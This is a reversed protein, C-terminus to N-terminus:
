KHVYIRRPRPSRVEYGHKKHRFVDYDFEKRGKSDRTTDTRVYEFNTNAPSDPYKLFNKLENLRDDSDKVGKSSSVSSKGFFEPLNDPSISKFFDKWSSLGKRGFSDVDDVFDAKKDALRAEADAKKASAANLEGRTLAEIISSVSAIRDLKGPQTPPAAAAVGGASSAGNGGNASLIPNLGAARLDEVERQHATNSMRESWDRAKQAEEAAFARQRKAEKSSASSNFISGFISSTLDFTGSIFSSLPDSSM